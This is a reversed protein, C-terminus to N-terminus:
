FQVFFVAADAEGGAKDESLDANRRFVRRAAMEFGQQVAEAAFERCGGCEGGKGAFGQRVDVRAIVRVARQHCPHLLFFGQEAGEFFVQQLLLQLRKGAVARIGVGEEGKGFAGQLPALRAGPCRQFVVQLM